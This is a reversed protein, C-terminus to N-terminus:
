RPGLERMAEATYSAYVMWWAGEHELVTPSEVGMAGGEARLLGRTLGTFTLGDTSRALGIGGPEHFFMWWVGGHLATSSVGGGQLRVGPEMAWRLGDASFASLVETAGRTLFMRWGGEVAVVDPDVYPGRLREGPEPTWRLGDRSRASRILSEPLAGPDLAEPQFITYLRYDEPGLRVVCPDVVLGPESPLDLREVEGGRLAKRVVYEGHEVYYTWAEGEVVVLQPSSAAEAYVGEQREWRAGDGSRARYLTKASPDPGRLMGAPQTAAPPQGKPPQDPDGCALFLALIM